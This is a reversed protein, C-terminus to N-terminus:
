RQQWADRLMRVPRLVPYLFTLPEPLAVFSRDKPSPGLALSLYHRLYARRDSLRERERLHFQFIERESAPEEDHPHFIWAPVIQEALAGVTADAAAARAISAPVPADLLERALHLGLYLMRTCRLEEALAHLREWALDPHARVCEAVDTIWSVRKWRHKTGHACLYLLLHEPHLARIAHKGVPEWVHRQWIREPTLNFSYIDFFFAWHLEVTTQKGQHVWEYGLQADIHEQADTPSLAQESAYGEAALLDTARAIHERPLLLDLDKFRRFAVNGYARHALLPGKFAIAPLGKAELLQVLRVLEQMQALNRFAIRRAGAALWTRVASPVAEDPLREVTRHLLPHIGHREVQEQVYAWDLSRRTCQAARALTPDDLATRSALFLLAEEPRLRDVLSAPSPSM